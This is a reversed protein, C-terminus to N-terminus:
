QLLAMLEDLVVAGPNEAKLRALAERTSAQKNGAKVAAVFPAYYTKAGPNLMILQYYLEAVRPWNGAQQHLGILTKIGEVFDPRKKIELEMYKIADASRGLQAYTGALALNINPFDPNRTEVEIYQQLVLDLRGERRYIDALNYRAELLNPDMEIVTLYSTKAAEFRSLRHLFYALNLHFLPNQNDYRAAARVSQEAKLLYEARQAPLVDAMATYVSALRNHQWPNKEDLKITDLYLVEAQKLYALKQPIDPTQEALSEYSKGLSMIYQTEWPAFKVALEFEDIAYKYRGSADFNFGDRYHREALYPLVSQWIGLGVLIITVGIILLHGFRLTTGTKTSTM